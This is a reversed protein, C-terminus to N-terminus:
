TPRKSKDIHNNQLKALLLGWLFFAFIGPYPQRLTVKFNSDILVLYLVIGGLWLVESSMKGMAGWLRFITYGILFLIPLLSILGFTYATDLYWNHASSRIERALPSAHGFVASQPSEVIGSGFLRWDAFRDQLNRPMQDNALTQIKGIYQGGDGANPSHNKAVGFYILMGALGAMFALLLTIKLVSKIKGSKEILKSCIFITIFTLFAFITLFSISFIAYIQMLITLLCLIKKYGDWLTVMVYSFACVFVLPVFQFHQYISFLYLNHTLVVRGQLISALLQAPVVLFLVVLFSKPIIKDTDEIMQGLILGSTPLLIQLMLIIKRQEFSFSFGAFILSALMMFLMAAVFTVALDARRYNGILVVVGILCTLISIPIPLQTLVGGSDFVPTKSNFVEGTLQFFLPFLLLFGIAWLM